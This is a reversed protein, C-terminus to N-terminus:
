EDREGNEIGQRKVMGPALGLLCETLKGMGYWGYVRWRIVFDKDDLLLLIQVNNKINDNIM